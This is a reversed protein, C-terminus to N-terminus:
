KGDSKVPSVSARRLLQNFDELHNPNEGNAPPSSSEATPKSADQATKQKLFANVSDRHSKLEPLNLVEMISWAPLVCTMGSLGRIFKGDTLLPEKTSQNLLRGKDSVEWIEPFQAFHIGLLAFFTVGPELIRLKGDDKLEETLDSGPTRYVFVPSGSYGTRSHLDVCYSNATAGNSQMIPTPNISIHGFRAAPRNVNGGDHDIFRGLMFVDDGPGVLAMANIEETLFGSTPITSMKYVTPDLALPIVAIDSRSKPDFHWQVDDFPFVDFGGDRTNVRVVPSGQCAVHWNTVVYVFSHGPDASEVAAFFGTGGFNSGSRADEESAYLYVVCDLMEPPIRPVGVPEWTTFPTGRASHRVVPRKAFRLHRLGVDSHVTRTLTCGKSPTLPYIQEFPYTMSRRRNGDPFSNTVSRGM